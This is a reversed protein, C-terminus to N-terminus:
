SVPHCYFRDKSRKFRPCLNRSHFSTSSCWQDCGHDGRDNPVSNRCHPCNRKIEDKFFEVLSGCEPCEVDFIADFGWEQTNNGTCKRM